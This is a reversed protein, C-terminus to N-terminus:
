HDTLLRDISKKPQLSCFLRTMWIVRIMLDDSKPVIASALHLLICSAPYLCSEHMM